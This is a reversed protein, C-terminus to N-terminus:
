VNEIITNGPIQPPLCCGPRRCSFIAAWILAAEVIVGIIVGMWIILVFLDLGESAYESRPNFATQPTEGCACALVALGVAAMIAALRRVRPGTSCRLTMDSWGACGALVAAATLYWGSNLM